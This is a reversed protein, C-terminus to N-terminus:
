WTGRRRVQINDSKYSNNYDSWRGEPETGGSRVFPLKEKEYRLREEPSIANWKDSYILFSGFRADSVDQYVRIGGPDQDTIGGSSTSHYQLAMIWENGKRFGYTVTGLYGDYLLQEAERQYAEITADSPVGSGVLRQLRKLDAAIKVAVYRAHTITRTYTSSQM